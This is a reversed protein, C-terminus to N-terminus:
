LLSLKKLVYSEIACDDEIWSAPLRQKEWEEFVEKERYPLTGWQVNSRLGTIQSIHKDLARLTWSRKSHIGYITSGGTPNVLMSEIVNSIGQSLNLISVLNLISYGPTAQMKNGTRYSDVLMDLFKTKRGGGFNDHLVLETFEKKVTVCSHRLIDSAKTKMESYESWPQFKKPAFQFYSSIGVIPANWVHNLESIKEAVDVISNKMKLLELESPNPSYYTALNLILDPSLGNPLIGADSNKEIRPWNNFQNKNPTYLNYSLSLLPTLESGLNGSSGIILISKGM